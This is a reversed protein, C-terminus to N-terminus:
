KGGEARMEDYKAKAAAGATVARKKAEKWDYNRILGTITAYLMLLCSVCCFVLVAAVFLGIKIALRAPGTGDDERSTSGDSWKTVIDVFGVGMGAGLLAGSLWLGFKEIRGLNKAERRYRSITYGHPRAAFIYVPILLLFFINWFKVFTADSEAEDLTEDVEELAMEQVDDFDAKALKTFLKHYKKKNDKANELESEYFERLQKSVDSKKLNEENHVIHSIATYYRQAYSLQRDYHWNKASAYSNGTFKLDTDKLSELDLVTFDGEKQWNQVQEVKGEVKKVDAQKGDVCMQLVFVSIIVGVVVRWNLKWHRKRSWGVISRLEATRRSFEADPEKLAAEAQNILEEMADVEAATTPYVNDDDTKGRAKDAESIHSSVCTAEWLLEYAEDNPHGEQTAGRLDEPDFSLYGEEKGKKKEEKM